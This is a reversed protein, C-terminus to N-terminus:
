RPRLVGSAAGPVCSESGQVRCQGCVSARLLMVLINPLDVISYMYENHDTQQARGRVVWGAELDLRLKGVHFEKIEDCAQGTNHERGGGAPRRANRNTVIVRVNSLM